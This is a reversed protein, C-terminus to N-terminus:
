EHNRGAREFATRLVRGTLVRCLHRKFEASSHIDGSPDVEESAALNAMEDFLEDSPRNGQLLQEARLAEVPTDGASLFVLKSSKCTGNEDLSVSAAIGAQAYDGHRRAIEQFAWGTRPQSPPIEVEVLIEEPAMDTTFLSLYFDKAAVWRDGSVSRLRFKADVAVAIAPLEAAPDAHALSGGLTGRNRIQPHAVYPIAENLLPARQEVLLDAELRSQRVMAGVRLGGAETPDIQDLGQVRNLDILIAPRALRFNLVPILSQGGALVKADYGHQSLLALAEEQTDPAIYDFPAPKM